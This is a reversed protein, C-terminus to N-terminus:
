GLDFLSGTVAYPLADGVSAFFGFMILCAGLMIVNRYFYSTQVYREAPDQVEWFRHFYLAAITVFLGIMLAGVDPYIGAAISLSGAVLWLGAPWGGLVPVPFRGGKAYGEATKSQRLHFKFGSEYGPFLVFLIRGILILIGAVESM